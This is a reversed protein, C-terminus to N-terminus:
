NNKVYVMSKGGVILKVKLIRKATSFYDFFITTPIESLYELVKM